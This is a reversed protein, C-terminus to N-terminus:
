SAAVQHQRLFTHIWQAVLDQGYPTHHCWDYFLRGKKEQWAGRFLPLLDLVPVGLRAAAAKMKQQPYDYLYDASVQNEVPFIVIRFSFNHLRSQRNIEALMPEMYRWASDSWSSGWDFFLESITKNFAAPNNRINASTPGPPFKKETEARWRQMQEHPLISYEEEKIQPKLFSLRYFIQQALVSHQLYDPPRLITIGPSPEVDNLYFALLVTDPRTSLGTENLIALENALGIAWVGANITEFPRPDKRSLTEVQRVWTREEPVYDALTISDGLVLVRERLPDKLPIERNRYGLSNTQIRVSCKCLFHNEITVDRDPRLRKGTSTNVFLATSSDIREDITRSQDLDQDIIKSDAAAPTLVAPVPPLVGRVVVEAILLAVGVGCLLLTVPLSLKRMVTMDINQGGGEKQALRKEPLLSPFM